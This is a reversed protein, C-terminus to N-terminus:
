INLATSQKGISKSFYSSYQFEEGMSNEFPSGVVVKKQGKTLPVKIKIGFIKLQLELDSDRYEQLLEINRLGNLYIM